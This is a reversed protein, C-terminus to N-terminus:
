VTGEVNFWSSSVGDGRRPMEVGALVAGEGFVVIRVLAAEVQHLPSPLLMGIEPEEVSRIGRGRRAEAGEGNGGHLREEMQVALEGIDLGLGQSLSEELLFAR